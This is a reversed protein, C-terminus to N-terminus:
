QAFDGFVSGIKAGIEQCQMMMTMDPQKGAQADAMAQKMATQCPGMDVIEYGEPVAFHDASIRGKDVEVAEIEPTAADKRGARLIIGDRTICAQQPADGEDASEWIDCSLGAIKDSGVKTPAAGDKNTWELFSELLSKEQPLKMAVKQSDPGEVYVVTHKQADDIVGIMKVGAEARSANMHPMEFRFQRSGNAEIAVEKVGAQDLDAKYVARYSATMKPFGKPLEVAPEEAAEPETTAVAAPPTPSSEASEAAQEKKGCGAAAIAAVVVLIRMRTM